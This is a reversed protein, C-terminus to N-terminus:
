IDVLIEEFTIFYRIIKMCTNVMEQVKSSVATTCVVNSNAWPRILFSGSFLSWSGPYARWDVRAPPGNGLPPSETVEKILLGDCFLNSKGGHPPFSGEAVVILPLGQHRLRYLTQRCHPLGPNLGQTPFIRQLVFHCGVGTSKGPFDWPRLLM